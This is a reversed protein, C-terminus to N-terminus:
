AVLRLELFYEDLKPLNMVAIGTTDEIAAIVTEIEGPSETALVFWMNLEHNRAYNHAVESRANVIGTVEDFRCDPVAMACLTFAGGMAKADLMPGFRSLIGDKRLASIREILEAEGIELEAAVIAFPREAVPFGGHLKNIIAKDTEDM